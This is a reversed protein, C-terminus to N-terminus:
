RVRETGVTRHQALYRYFDRLTLESAAAPDLIVTADPHLQLASAPVLSTLPGEIAAAVAAAKSEGQAILLVSRAELITGLGQTVCHTPVLELSPFFRANDIRTGPALTKVRTRSALSSTPENFGIHGNTGIGLIQIDVGGVARIHADFEKAAADLDDAMGNPTMVLEANLGLPVTAERAIVSAYSQPHERPIGVYEDLAFARVEGLDLEGSRVRRALEAYIGLPSSGTALGLVARPNDAVVHAIREAALAAGEAPSDVILIEV